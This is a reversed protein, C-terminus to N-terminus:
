KLFEGIEKIFVCDLEKVKAVSDYPQKLDISMIANAFSKASDENPFTILPSLLSLEVSKIRTSVVRLNHSLYSLIKSPFATNMYQGQYQPNLAIDCNSLIWDYEEGVKTGFYHCEKGHMNAEWILGKLKVIDNYDGFGLINLRYINPLYKMSEIANYAGSKTGDISGAYVLEIKDSNQKACGELNTSYGGYLIICRKNKLREKLIDSVVIYSDAAEILMKEMYSLCRNTNWVDSYIEEVELILKFRKFFKAMRIPISIWQVHYVLINEDKSVNFLMYMFLWMLSFVIKINRFLKNNTGWSPCFTVCINEDIKITRQKEYNNEIDDVIWSPSIIEVNYGARVIASCIYDMKNTAALNCVRNSGSSFDYFGIYKVTKRSM